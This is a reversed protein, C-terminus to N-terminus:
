LSYYIVIFTISLSYLNNFIIKSQLMEPSLYILKFNEIHDLIQKKENWSLMSNIAAVKKFGTAKLQKVQDTMLSLLPSIVVVHDEGMMAPLQYCISKGSGTPLVALVDEKKLVHQIIEAQGERFSTYKFYKELYSELSQEMM